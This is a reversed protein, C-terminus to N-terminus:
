SRLRPWEDRKAAVDDFVVVVFIFIALRVLFMVPDIETEGIGCAFSIWASVVAFGYVISARHIEIYGIGSDYKLNDAKNEYFIGTVVLVAVLIGFLMSALEM